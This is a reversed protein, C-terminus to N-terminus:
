PILNIGVEIKAATRRFPVNTRHHAGDLSYELTITEAPDASTPQVNQAVFTDFDGLSFNLLLFHYM